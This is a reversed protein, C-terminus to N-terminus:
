LLLFTLLAYLSIGGVFLIGAFGPEGDRNAEPIMSQTVMTLLFGAALALLALRVAESQNRLLGFGLVAGGLMCVMFLFSLRRRYERPIGQRKATAITLFALPAASLALSLALLLGMSISVTSGVGILVGDVVFDVLVGIFLGISPATVSSTSASALRRVALFEILVFLGGGMFFALMGIQFAGGRLAAPMLSFAVLATIIGAAFQLAANVARDPAEFREAAPAGLYTLFAAVSAIILVLLFDNM